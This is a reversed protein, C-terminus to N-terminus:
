VASISGLLYCAVCARSLADIASHRGVSYHGHANRQRMMDAFFYSQTQM